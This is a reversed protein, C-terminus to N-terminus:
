GSSQRLLDPGQQGAIRHIGDAQLLVEKGHFTGPEGLEQLRQGPADRVWGWATGDDELGLSHYSGAAVGIAGSLTSVTVPVTSNLNTGDGLQGNYGWARATGDDKLALSRFRGGTVGVVGTLGSVGVPSTRKKTTSSCV